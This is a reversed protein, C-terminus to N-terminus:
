LNLSSSPHHYPIQPSISIPICTYLGEHTRKEGEAPTRTAPQDEKRAAENEVREKQKGDHRSEAAYVHLRVNGPMCVQSALPKTTTYLTAPTSVM